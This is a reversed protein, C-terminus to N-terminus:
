NRQALSLHSLREQLRVGLKGSVSLAKSIHCKKGLKAIRDKIRDSEIPEFNAM